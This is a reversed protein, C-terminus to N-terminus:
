LEHRLVDDLTNHPYSPSRAPFIIVLNQGGVAFGAIWGPVQHAFDSNEAALVVKIPRGSDPIGLVQMIDALRQPDLSQLRTRIAAFQPAAEIQLEPFVARFM